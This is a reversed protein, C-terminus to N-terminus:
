EKVRANLLEDGFMDGLSVGNASESGGIYQSIEEKEQDILYKKISLDIERRRRNLRSVKAIVRDGVQVVDECRETHKRDLQSIHIYGEIDDEIQVYVGDEEIRTVVGEVVANSKYNRSIRKWPDEELQKIGLSIKEKEVDVDLLVVQITSGKKMVESPHEIRKTWSMDSVHVLGDVGNELRVFAGFDTLKVVKGTLIDGKNYKTKLEEWPNPLVQKMGLAMKRDEPNINLIVVEIEDGVSVLKSPHQTPRTWTMESIHVLGELGEEIEVFAGYDVVSTVKGKVRMGPMYKETVVTWPNPTKQKYGFSLKGEEHNIALLIVEVEDGIAFRESPHKVHGWSIDTVHLLGEIGEGIDIFVGFDTIGTVKGPLLQGVELNSFVERRRGELEEELLVRRSLVVNKQRRNVRDVKMKYIQGVHQELNGSQRLEVQSAPLFGEIGAGLDVAFGGKIRRIIKGEVAGGTRHANQLKEWTRIQDARRKSLIVLGDQEKKRVYVEVEDGVSIGLDGYDEPAFDSIPIVGESKYGIDVLVDADTIQVVKGKVITREYINEGITEEYLEAPIQVEERDTSASRESVVGRAEEVRGTGHGASGGGAQQTSPGSHSSGPASSDSQSIPEASGAVEGAAIPAEAGADESGGVLHTTEEM